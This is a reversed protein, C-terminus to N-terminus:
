TAPAQGAQKRGNLLWGLPTRRVVLLYLAFLPVFTATCILLLKWPARMESTKVIGQLVFVLPLHMLYIWYSSDSVLRVWKSPRRATRQFLGILGLTLGWCTLAQLMATGGGIPGTAGSSEFTAHLAMPFALLGLLLWLPWGGTVRRTEPDALRLLGGYGFFLGYFALIVGDPRWHSSTEPGFVPRGATASMQALLAATAPVLLVLGAPTALRGSIGHVWRGSIWMLPAFGVSLLVLFWLFWLHSLPGPGRPVTGSVSDATPAARTEIGVHTALRARGAPVESMDLDLRLLGALYACLGREEDGFPSRLADLPTSGDANRAGADAGADILVIGADARGFFAAWHLPTAGRDDGADIAAGADLLARCAAADDQGAAFHLPTPGSDAGGESPQQAAWAAAAGTLPLVTFVAIAFPVLVRLSRQRLLGGLGRRQWLLVSFYGSLLFFLPMRFSHIGFFLLDLRPVAADDRVPWPLLTLSLVGHLVVGLLMAFGRLADLDHRRGTSDPIPAPTQPPTV